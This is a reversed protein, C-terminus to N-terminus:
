PADKSIDKEIWKSTKNDKLFYDFWDMVKNTLDTQAKKNTLTHNENKYFLAVVPKRYRRLALYMAMTQSRPVNLDDTGTWLLLPANINEAFYVPNNKIYLEKRDAFSAHFEYQLTEMRFYEPFSFGYNYSFYKQLLNGTGAGAVYAAFRDSHTAIFNTEYGGFSHGILGIKQQDIAKIENLADLANNVCELASIGPGKEGDIEIDPLYVFYGKELLLRINFGRGNYYSALPYRNTRHQQKQYIHVIMPYKKEIDYSMPYFLAGKLLNGQNDTYVIVEQKVKEHNRSQYLLKKEKGVEKFVAQPPLNHNEEIYVFCQYDADHGLGRIHNKTPHIILEYENDQWRIYSHTNKIPDYLTFIWPQKPDLIGQSCPARFTKKASLYLHRKFLTLQGEKFDELTKLNDTLPDYEWLSANGTFWIRNGDPSFYPIELQDGGIIKKSNSRINYYVWSKNKKYLLNKGNPSVHLENSLTDVITYDDKLRDYINIQFPTPKTYDQLLFPDFSIFYRDSGINENRIFADSGIRSAKKKEPNWYYCVNRPPYFKKVLANDNGHWVNVLTTDKENEPLRLKLFYSEGNQITESSAREFVIPLVENLPFVTNSKLNLYQVQQQNESKQEYIMMGEGDPDVQIGAIKRPSRYLTKNTGNQLVAIKYAKGKTKAIAYIKGEKGPYFRSVNKLSNLLKGTINRVEFKNHNKQDYLLVFHKKDDMVKVQKAGKFLRSERKNLDIFEMGENKGLLLHSNGVFFIEKVCERSGLIEPAKRKSLRFISVTKTEPGNKESNTNWSKKRLVMWKANESIKPAAINYNESISQVGQFDQAALEPGAMLSLGLLIIFLCYKM